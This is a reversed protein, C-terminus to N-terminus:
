LNNLKEVAEALGASLADLNKQDCVTDRSTHLRGTIYGIGASQHYASVGVGCVFRRYDGAGRVTIRRFFGAHLGAETIHKELSTRLPMYEDKGEAMKPVSIVFHEGDGVCNLDVLLQMTQTEVHQKGYWKSGRCGTEQNDFLIFAVTERMDPPIRQMTELLAAVGSTNDNVNHQNAKGFMMLLMLVMYTGFFSLILVDGSKSVLGLGIGVLLSLLLMGVLVMGQSVVYVPWNRPIRWDPIGITAATDYHASVIMKANLPDGVIINRHKLKDKGNMGDIYPTYGMGRMRAMVWKEFASKQEKTKRVPHQGDIEERITM